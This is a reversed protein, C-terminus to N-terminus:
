LIGSSTQGQLFQYFEKLERRARIFNTGHDSWILSSLGCHAIFHHSTALFAETILDTVLEIHVAMVAM